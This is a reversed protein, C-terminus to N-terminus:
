PLCFQGAGGPQLDRHHLDATISFAPLARARAPPNAAWAPANPRDEQNSNQCVIYNNLQPSWGWFINFHPSRGWIAPDRKLHSARRAVPRRRPTEGRLFPAFTWLSALREEGEWECSVVRWEGSVGRGSVLVESGGRAAGQEQERSGGAPASAVASPPHM